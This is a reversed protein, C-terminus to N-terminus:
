RGDDSRVYQARFLRGLKAMDENGGLGMDFGRMFDCIDSMPLGLKDELLSAFPFCPEAPFVLAGFPCCHLGLEPSEDGPLVAYGNRIAEECADQLCEALESLEEADM